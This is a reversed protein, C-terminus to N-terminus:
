FTAVALSANKGARRLVVLLRNPEEEGPLRRGDRSEGMGADVAGVVATLLTSVGGLLTSVGSSLEQSNTSLTFFLPPDGSFSSFVDM